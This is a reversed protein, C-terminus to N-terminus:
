GQACVRLCVALCPPVSTAAAAVLFVIKSDPVSSFLYTMLLLSHTLAHTLLTELWHASPPFLILYGPPGRPVNACVRGTGFSGTFLALLPRLDVEPYSQIM